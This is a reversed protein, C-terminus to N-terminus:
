TDPFFVFIVSVQVSFVSVKTMPIQSKPNRKWENCEALVHTSEGVAREALGRVSYRSISRFLQYKGFDDLQYTEQKIVLEIGTHVPCGLGGTCEGLPV